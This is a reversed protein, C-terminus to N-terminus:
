CSLTLSSRFVNHDVGNINVVITTLDPFDCGIFNFWHRGTQQAMDEIDSSPWGGDTTLNIRLYTSGAQVGDYFCSWHTYAADCMSAIDEVFNNELSTLFQKEIAKADIGPSKSPSPSTSKKAKQTSSPQPTPSATKPKKSATPTPEPPASETSPDESTAEPPTEEQDTEDTQCSREVTLRPNVLPQNAEPLQECVTWSSEDIVGFMGGGITEIEDEESFGARHIDSKALELSSGRVEPMIPTSVDASSCGQFVFAVVLASAGVIGAKFFRNKSHHM